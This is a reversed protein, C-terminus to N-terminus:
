NTKSWVLVRGVGYLKELTIALRGLPSFLPKMRIGGKAPYAHLLLPSPSLFQGGSSGAQGSWKPTGVTEPAPTDSRSRWQPRTLRPHFGRSTYTGQLKDRWRRSPHRYSDTYPDRAGSLCCLDGNQPNLPRECRVFLNTIIM